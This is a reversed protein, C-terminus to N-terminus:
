NLLVFVVRLSFCYLFLCVVYVSSWFLVVFWCSRVFLYVLLIIVIVVSLCVCM